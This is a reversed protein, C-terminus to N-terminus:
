SARPTHTRTLATTNIHRLYNLASPALTPLMRALHAAATGDPPMSAPFVALVDNPIDAVFGGGAIDEGLHHIRWGHEGVVTTLLWFAHRLALPQRLLTKDPISDRRLAPYRPATTHESLLWTLDGLLDGGRQGLTAVQQALRVVLPTNTCCTPVIPNASTITLGRHTPTHVDLAAVGTSHSYRLKRLQWGSDIVALANWHAVRLLPDTIDLNTSVATPDISM